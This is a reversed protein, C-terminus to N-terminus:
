EGFRMTAYKEMSIANSFAMGVYLPPSPTNAPSVTRAAASM